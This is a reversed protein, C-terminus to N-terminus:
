DVEVPALDKKKSINAVYIVVNHEDRLFEEPSYDVRLVARGDSSWRLLSLENGKRGIASVEPLDQIRQGEEMRDMVSRVAMLFEMQEEKSLQHYQEFSPQTFTMGVSRKTPFSEAERITSPSVSTGLYKPAEKLLGVVTVMHLAVKAERRMELVLEPRPGLVQGSPRKHVWDEKQENIVLLVPRDHLLAENMLQRWVLYDGAQREPSNKKEDAYGPPIREGRRRAAEKVAEKHDTEDLAGGVRDALLSELREVVSDTSDRVQERTLDYAGATRISAALTVSLEDVLGILRQREDAGIQHRNAFEQIRQVVTTLLQDIEKCKEEAANLRSEVVLLRNRYFELAAQHTIFLRLRLKELVEFYENRASESFRYLDLLANADISVLGNRYANRREEETPPYYGPFLDTLTNGNSITIAEDTDAM